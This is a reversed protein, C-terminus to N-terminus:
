LNLSCHPFWKAVFSLYLFAGYYDAHMHRVTLQPEEARLRTLPALVVRHFTGLTGIELPTFLPNTM